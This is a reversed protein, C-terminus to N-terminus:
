GFGSVVPKMDDLESDGPKVAGKKLIPMNIHCTNHTTTHPKLFDVHTVSYMLAM